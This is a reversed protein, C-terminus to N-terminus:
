PDPALVKRAVAEGLEALSDIVPMTESPPQMLAALETCGAIAAQAGADAYSKLMAELRRRAASRNGQRVEALIMDHLAQQADPQPTRVQIGHRGLGQQYLGSQATCLTSLLGVRRLKDATLRAAVADVISVFPLGLEAQLRPLLVHLTNCPVVLFDAGAAKLQRGATLMDDLYLEVGEGTRLLTEETALDIRMSAVLVAPRALAGARECRRIVDCYLDATAGPGAGGIIGALRM